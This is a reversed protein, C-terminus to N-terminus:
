SNSLYRQRIASIEEKRRKEIEQVANEIEEGLTDNMTKILSGILLSEGMSQIEKIQEQYSETLKRKVNIKEEIYKEMVKEVEEEFLEIHSKKPAGGSRDSEELFKKIGLSGASFTNSRFDRRNTSASRQNVRDRLRSNLNEAQSQLNEQIRKSASSSETTHSLIAKEANREITIDKNPPSNMLKAKIKQKEEARKRYTDRVSEPTPTLSSRLPKQPNQYDKIVKLVEERALFKQMRDQYHLYRPDKISELQEIAQSYLALLRQIMPFSVCFDLEGELDLVEQAFTPSLVPLSDDPYDDPVTKSQHKRGFMM